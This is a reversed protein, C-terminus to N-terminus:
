DIENQQYLMQKMGIQANYIINEQINELVISVLLAPYSMLSILQLM